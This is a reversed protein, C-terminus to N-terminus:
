CQAAQTCSGALSRRRPPPASVPAGSLKVQHPPARATPRAAALVARRGHQPEFEWRPLHPGRFNLGVSADSSMLCVKWCACRPWFAPFLLRPTHRTAPMRARRVQLFTLSGRGGPTLSGSSGGSAPPAPATTFPDPMSHLLRLALDVAM